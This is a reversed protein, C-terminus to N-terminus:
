SNRIASSYNWQKLQRVVAAWQVSMALEQETVGGAGGSVSLETDLNCHIVFVDTRYPRFKIKQNFFSRFLFRQNSAILSMRRPQMLNIRNRIRLLQQHSVSCIFRVFPFRIFHSSSHTM